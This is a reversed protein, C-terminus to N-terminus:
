SDIFSNQIIQKDPMVIETYSTIGEGMNPHAQSYVLDVAFVLVLVICITLSIKKPIKKFQNDLAPALLYVIMVGGLGFILLGEGSVRGQINLFYGSYDWWKQGEHTVELMLGSLYEVIGCLIVSAIFLVLPNKRFKYLLLVILVVGAGYVPLWPGHLVGRNVFKGDSILHLMVEWAWGIFCTTFFLFVISQITYHRKYVMNDVSGLKQDEPIPFLRGPYQDRQIIEKIQRARQLRYAKEEYAKEAEDERIILGFTHSLFKQIANRYVPKPIDEIDNYQNDILEDYYDAYVDLLTETDAKEYLLEDNLLESGPIQNEKALRRIYAYYEACAAEHYPNSYLIGSIGFTFFDLFDWGLFSLQLKCLEWKHGDMMRRSLTIVENPKLTPNECLIYPTMAYSYSKIIGGIITLGWLTMYITEVLTELVVNVWKRQRIFFFFRKPPVNKYIRSEMFFRKYVVHIVNFIFLQVFVYAILSLLIFFVMAANKSSTINQMAEFAKVLIEGSSATNVLKSFVGRSHGIAVVGVRYERAEQETIYEQSASKGEDMKGFLIMEWVRRFNSKSDEEETIEAQGNEGDGAGASEDASDSLLGSLGSVANQGAQVSGETRENLYDNALRDPKYDDLSVGEHERVTKRTADSISALSAKYEFGLLAILLCLFVFMM